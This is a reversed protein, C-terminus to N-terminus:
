PDLTLRIQTGDPQATMTATFLKRRYPFGVRGPTYGHMVAKTAGTKDTILEMGGPGAIKDNTAILREDTRTCPGAVSPCSAAGVAYTDSSWSAGSYFLVLNGAPARWMFPAEIVGRDWSKPEGVLLLSPEGLVSLGDAGLKQSWLMAPQGVGSGESKFVLYRSGDTDTFVSPDITGSRDRQCVLPAASNDVFPGTSSASVAVSVCQWTSATEAVTYYMVWTQGIKVVHPAWTANPAAWAPLKPLADGAWKWTHLDTSTAAQINGGGSNTSYAVYTAGDAVVAPDPFDFPLAASDTSEAASCVEVVGGLEGAAGPGDGATARNLARHLGDICDSKRAVDLDYGARMKAATQALQEYVAAESRLTAINANAAGAAAASKAAKTALDTARAQLDALQAAQSLAAIRTGTAKGARGTTATEVAHLQVQSVVLVAAVTAVLVGTALKVMYPWDRFLVAVSVWLRKPLSPQSRQLFPARGTTAPISTAPIPTVPTATAHAASGPAPAAPRLAPTEPPVPAPEPSPAVPIPTPVVAPPPAVPLPAAAPGPAMPRGARRALSRPEHVVFRHAAAARNTPGVVHRHGPTWQSGTRRPIYPEVPEGLASEAREPLEGLEGPGPRGPDTPPLGNPAVVNTTVDDLDVIATTLNRRGATWRASSESERDPDILRDRLPYVVDDNFPGREVM